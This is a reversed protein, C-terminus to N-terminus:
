WNLLRQAFHLTVNFRPQRSFDLRTVKDSPYARKMDSEDSSPLFRNDWPFKKWLFFSPHIFFFFFTFSPYPLSWYAPCRKPSITANVNFYFANWRFPLFPYNEKSRGGTVHDSLSRSSTPRVRWGKGKEVERLGLTREVCDGHKNRRDLPPFPSLFKNIAFLFALLIDISLEKCLWKKKLRYLWGCLIKNHTLFINKILGSCLFSIRPISVGGAWQHIYKVKRSSNKKKIGM